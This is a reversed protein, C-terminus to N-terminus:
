LLETFSLALNKGVLWRRSPSDRTIPQCAGLRPADWAVPVVQFLERKAEVPVGRSQPALEEIPQRLLRDLDFGMGMSPDNVWVGLRTPPPQTLSQCNWPFNPRFRWNAFVLM